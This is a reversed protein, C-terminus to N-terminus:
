LYCSRRWKILNIAGNSYFSPVLLILL